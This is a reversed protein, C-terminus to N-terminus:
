HMSNHTVRNQRYHSCIYITNATTIVTVIFHITVGARGRRLRSMTPVHGGKM